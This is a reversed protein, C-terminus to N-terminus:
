SPLDKASGFKDRTRAERAGPDGTNHGGYELPFAANECFAPKASQTPDDPTPPQDPIATTM